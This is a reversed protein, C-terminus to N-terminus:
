LLSDILMRLKRLELTRQDKDMEDPFLEVSLARDYRHKDLQSILRAYDVEGLGVQVQLQKETSDRLFVHSTYGTVLELTTEFKEEGLFYSPDFGLGLGDVSQCLEVATHADESLRGRETRIAVRVGEKSAAAVLTKLRDIESNFPTGVVESPINIQTVRLAKALKCLETFPKLEIANALTLAVPTLRTRDRLHAHFEDPSSTVYSPKLAGNEDLYIEVKDYELDNILTLAQWFDLESFCRTSAAVFVCESGQLM